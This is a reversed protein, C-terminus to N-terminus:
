VPYRLSTKFCFVVQLAQECDHWQKKVPAFIGVDAPRLIHTANPYLIFLFIGNERCFLSLDMSLHSRHGDMYLVVSLTTEQEV